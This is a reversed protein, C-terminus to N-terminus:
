SFPGTAGLVELSTNLLCKIFLLGEKLICIKTHTDVDCGNQMEKWGHHM